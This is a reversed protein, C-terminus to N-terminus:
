TTQIQNKTTTQLEDIEIYRNLQTKSKNELFFLITKKDKDLSFIDM